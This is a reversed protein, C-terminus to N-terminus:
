VAKLRENRLLTAAAVVLCILSALAQTLPASTQEAFTGVLFSGIPIVGMFSTTYFGLVRGRL